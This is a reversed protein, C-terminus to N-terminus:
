TERHPVLRPNDVNYPYLAWVLFNFRGTGQCSAFFLRDRSVGHEELWDRSGTSCIYYMDDPDNESYLKPELTVFGGTTAYVKYTTSTLNKILKESQYQRFRAM